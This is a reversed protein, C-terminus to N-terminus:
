RFLTLINGLSELNISIEAIKKNKKKLGFIQSFLDKQREKLVQVELLFSFDKEILLLTIGNTNDKIERIVEVLVKIYLAIIPNSIIYNSYNNFNRVMSTINIYADQVMKRTLTAVDNRNIVSEVFKIHMKYGNSYKLKLQEPIGICVFNGRKLWSVRDCLVEAEEISHTTLIMNYKHGTNSLDNIIRWMIRRSEPDVGTSPEDLLLLNPKNMLAIAFTLKRKNGGSLNVCYTDLYQSIDFMNCISEITETSHKLNLYFSIIERVKMYDFLPNEQPCYGIMPRLQEFQSKNDLGFLTISGKEYLIENTIARFTTTKGSGNFGLLGFKENAELGLYLNNVARVNKKCCFYFTKYLGEIKTTLGPRNNIKEREERIFQNTYNNGAPNNNNSISVRSNYIQSLQNIQASLLIKDNSQANYLNNNNNQNNNSSTSIEDPSQNISNNIINSNAMNNNTIMNKNTMANNNMVMNNNPMMNSNTIMNNNNATVNNNMAINNNNNNNNANNLHNNLENQALILPNRLVNHAYFEEAVSEESFVFAAQDSHMKACCKSLLRSENLLMLGLYLIFDVLQMLIGTIVYETPKGYNNKYDPDVADEDSKAIRLFTLGLSSLPTLDFLSFTYSKPMFNFFFEYVARNEAAIPYIIYSYILAIAFAGIVISLLLIKTGSDEDQMFSSFFYIFVLSSMCMMPMSLFYYIGKNSALYIPLLVLYSFLLLKLFDIIFFAVWYSWMNCGSLYLLYKIKYKREKIKEYVVGGLFIIFGFLVSIGIITTATENNEFSDKDGYSNLFVDRFFFTFIYSITLAGIYELVFLVKNRWIPLINRKLQSCLQPCFGEPEIRNEQIFGELETNQNVYKMQKINARNNIKLFVDELSASGIIYDEIGFQAKSEEIYNFIESIHDNNEQINLAFVGKSAIKIEAQPDYEKIKEYIIRKSEENFTKSNIVFNINIGCPYMSKLYTSSGTCILRGNTMIGIRNGLYEAEELSHTTVLIIKNKQYNKLFEWLQKKAIVDMGSTPEDLITIKGGTLLALAICLKRKQGGSLNSCKNNQCDSLDLKVILEQIENFNVQLGKIDYIYQLHESVTLYDFLIDEQQCLGINEYLLDKNTIISTGDLFIDGEEPDMLGSILNVLTTKGAGNHGLLCFIENEFLECSVNNVAKLTGFRKTVGAIKLYKNENKKQQEIFTLEQHHIEYNNENILPQNAQDEINIVVNRSVDTFFSKLYSCFTLGSDKYSQIFLILFTYLFIQYCFFLFTEFYAINKVRRLLIEGSFEYEDSIVYMVTCTYYINIQPSFSFILKINRETGPMQLAIGIVTSVFNFLKIVISGNKLSSFITAFFYLTVYSSVMYLVLNIFTFIYNYIMFFGCFSCFAAFPLGCLFVYTVFWSLIYRKKTIGQRELFDNLKKEKEEIMRSCLYFSILSMEFSLFAGIYLDYIERDGKNSYLKSSFQKIDPNITINQLDTDDENASIYKEIMTNFDAVEENKLTSHLQDLRPNEYWKKFSFNKIITFINSVFNKETKKLDFNIKNNKHTYVIINDYKKKIEKEIEKEQLYYNLHINTEKEIFKSLKEGNRLDNVLITTKNLNLSNLFGNNSAHSAFMGYKEEQSKRYIYTKILSGPVFVVTILLPVVFYGFIFSCPNSKLYKYRIKYLSYM